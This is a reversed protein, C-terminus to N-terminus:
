YDNSYPILEFHDFGNNEHGVVTMVRRTNEVKGERIKDDGALVRVSVATGYVAKLAAPKSTLKAVSAPLVGWHSVMISWPM